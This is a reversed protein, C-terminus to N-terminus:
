CVTVHALPYPQRSVVAAVAGGSGAGTYEEEEAAAAAKQAADTDTDTDTDTDGNLSMAETLLRQIARATRVKEEDQAEQWEEETMAMWENYDVATSDGGEVVDRIEEIVSASVAGEWEQPEGKARGGRKGGFKSMARAKNKAFRMTSVTQSQVQRAKEAIRRGYILTGIGYLLVLLLLIFAGGLDEFSM